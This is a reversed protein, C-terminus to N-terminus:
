AFVKRATQGSAAVKGESCSDLRAPSAALLSRGLCAEFKGVTQPTAKRWCWRARGRTHLLRSSSSM